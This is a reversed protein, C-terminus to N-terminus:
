NSQDLSASFMRNMHADCSQYAHKPHTINGVRSEDIAPAWSQAFAVSHWRRLVNGLLQHSCIDRMMLARRLASRLISDKVEQQLQQMEAYVRHREEERARECSETALADLQRTEDQHEQRLKEQLISTSTFKAAGKKSILHLIWICCVLNSRAAKEKEQSCCQLIFLLAFYLDCLLCSALMCWAIM